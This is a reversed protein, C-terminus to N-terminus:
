LPGVGFTCFTDKKIRYMMTLVNWSNWLFAKSYKEAYFDGHSRFVLVLMEIKSARGAACTKAQFPQKQPM